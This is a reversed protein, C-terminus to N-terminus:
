PKTPSQSKLKQARALNEAAHPLSPDLSLATHFEVIAPELQGNQALVAGLQNHLEANEPAYKLSARLNEIANNLQGTQLQLSLLDSRAIVSAPNLETARKFEALAADAHGQHALAVGLNVHCDASTPRSQLALDYQAIADELHGQEALALGLNNHAEYYGPSIQLAHRYLPIAEDFQGREALCAGLGVCAMTSDPTVAVARAFLSETTQWYGIQARTIVLCAIAAAVTAMAAAIEQPRRGKTLEGVGWVVAILIGLCPIYTYRDAISQEGIQILGIVPVLTGLYWFWGVFLWPQQKRRFIVLVSVMVLFLAAGCVFIAPWSTVRPYFPSLNAPWFLKELYRCYSVLANEIRANPSLTNVMAAGNKQAHRAILCMGASLALFPLKEVLVKRFPIQRVRGLPWFDILLLVFPFTVLMSKSLLGLTFWLLSLSYYITKHRSQTASEEVYRAYTWLALMFFFVSLVDKREAVWAVSEVRLPHLGFLLAVFFSRWTAGSIKRLVWFALFSNAAHFLVNTFHHGWPRLGFLQGDLMHSLWTIPHWNAGHAGFAWKLGAFSLGSKVYPNATVYEPDDYTLFGNHVAPLFAWLVLLFLFAGALQAKPKESNQTSHRTTFSM